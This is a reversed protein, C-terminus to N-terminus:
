LEQSIHKNAEQAQRNLKNQTSHGQNTYGNVVLENGWQLRLCHFVAM